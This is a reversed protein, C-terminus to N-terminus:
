FLREKLCKVRESIQAASCFSLMFIVAIVYCIANGIGIIVYVGDDNLLGIALFFIAFCGIWGSLPVPPSVATAIGVVALTIGNIIRTSKLQTAWVYRPRSFRKMFKIFMLFTPIITNLVWSPIKKKLLFKPMWIFSREMAIRIGLYTIFAGFFIAIGPIQTFGLSLVILLFVKGRGSFTTLLTKVSVPKQKAKKLL